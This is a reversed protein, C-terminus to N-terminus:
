TVLMESPGHQCGSPGIDLMLVATMDVVKFDSNANKHARAESMDEEVGAFRKQQGVRSAFATSWRVEGM